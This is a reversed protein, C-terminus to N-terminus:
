KKLNQYEKLYKNYKNSIITEYIHWSAIVCGVMFFYWVTCLIFNDISGMPNASHHSLSNMTLIYFATITAIIRTGQSINIPIIDTFCIIIALAFFAVYVIVQKFFGMPIVDFGNIDKYIYALVVIAGIVSFAFLVVNMLEKLKSDYNNNM